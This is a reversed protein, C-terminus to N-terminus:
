GRGGIGSWYQGLCEREMEILREFGPDPSLSEKPAERQGLCLSIVEAVSKALGELHYGGELVFVVKGGCFENGLGLVRDAMRVFGEETVEMGGLPDQYHTDFGASVLILEPKFDRAVPTLIQAFIADFIGDGCGGPLPVNVTYGKGRGTGIENYYGSGPYFPYRHTSFYLVRPDEFFAHQTGNGHHVDWDVILIRSLRHQDLAHYAAVAVNNFLCFGMARDREAHHGPPRILAFANNVQGSMVADVANLLGGAAFLAAQYSHPSTPTDGDLYYQEHNATAAIRSLHNKTHVKLLEEPTAERLPIKEASKMLGRESLVSYIRQLREAKEPHGPGTDHEMFISDAVIGTKTM